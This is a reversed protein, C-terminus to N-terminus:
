QTRARLVEGSVLAITEDLSMDDSVWINPWVITGDKGIRAPYVHYANVGLCEVTWWAGTKLEIEVNFAWQTVDLILSDFKRGDAVLHEALRVALQEGELGAANTQQMERRFGDLFGDQQPMAAIGM